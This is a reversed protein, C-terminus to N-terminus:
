VGKAYYRFVYVVMSELDDFVRDGFYLTFPHIDTGPERRYLLVPKGANFATVIEAMTGLSDSADAVVM